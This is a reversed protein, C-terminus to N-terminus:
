LIGVWFIADSSNMKAQLSSRELKVGVGIGHLGVIILCLRVLAKLIYIM